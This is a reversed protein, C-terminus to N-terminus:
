EQLIHFHGNILLASDKLMVKVYHQVVSSILTFM